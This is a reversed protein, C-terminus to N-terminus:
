CPLVGSRLTRFVFRGGEPVTCGVPQPVEQDTVNVTITRIAPNLEVTYTFGITDVPCTELISILIGSENYDWAGCIADLPYGNYWEPADDGEELTVLESHTVLKTEGRSITVTFDHPMPEASAVGVGILVTGTALAAILIRKIGLM